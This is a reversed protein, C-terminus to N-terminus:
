QDPTPYKEDYDNMYVVMATSLGQMNTSCVVRQAIMKTKSLAPMLIALMLPVVVLSLVAPVAIGAIALGNGKLQGNSKGIKVLAIIGCIIAPIAMFFSCFLSLIGTVLSAIALGCTKPEMAALPIGQAVAQQSPETLVNGCNTCQTAEDSNQMGCKSCYM